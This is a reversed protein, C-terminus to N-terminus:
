NQDDNSMLSVNSVEEMKMDFAFLSGHGIGQSHVTMTGDGVEVIKKVITLGLGIGNNNLKATRELKGFKQFLKPLNKKEIGSGTDRVHVTVMGNRFGTSIFISGNNTFKLANKVLNMLVQKLRKTDGFLKPIM